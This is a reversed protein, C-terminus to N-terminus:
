FWRARGCWLLHNSTVRPVWVELKGAKKIEAIAPLWWMSNSHVGHTMTKNSPFIIKASLVHYMLTSFLM